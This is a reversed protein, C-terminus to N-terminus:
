LPITADPSGGPRAPAASPAAAAPGGARGRRRIRRAAELVLAGMGILTLAVIAAPGVVPVLALLGLGFLTVFLALTRALADRGRTPQVRAHLREAVSAAALVYGLPLSMLCACAVLLALPIGVLSLSLLAVAIPGGLALALGALLAAGSRGEITNLMSRTLRPALARSLMGVAAMGLAALTVFLTADFLRQWPGASPGSQVHVVEGHILAGPAVSAPQPGRFIVRGDIEASPAIELEDGSVDIDGEVHGSVRTSGAGVQLYHGISGAIDARGAAISAAGAISARPGLTVDGGAIRANGAVEGDLLVTGGAAYLDSGFPGRLALEHGAIVGDGHVAAGVDISGGFLVADGLVEEALHVDQGSMFTDQGLSPPGPEPEARAGTALTLCALGGLMASRGRRRAFAWRRMSHTAPPIAM